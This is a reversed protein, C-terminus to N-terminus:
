HLGWAAMGSVQMVRACGRAEQDQDECQCCLVACVRRIYATDLDSITIAAPSHALAATLAEAEAFPVLANIAPLMGGSPGDYLYTLLSPFPQTHPTRPTCRRKKLMLYIETSCM